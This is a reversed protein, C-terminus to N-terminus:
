FKKLKVVKRRIQGILFPTLIVLYLLFVLPQREPIQIFFYEQRSLFDIVIIHFSLIMDALWGSLVGLIPVSALVGTFFTLGMAFPLSPLIILNALISILSFSGFYYFSIPLTMLSAAITTFITSAIWNIKREGYFYSILMPSLLMIGTFSAFSLLWGLDSVLLPNIMLTITATLLIIRWADYKRGRYWALLKLIAMIGARLISATWGVLAMFLVIFIISFLLCAFRSIKFFLRRVCDVLISLHTGSAVVIHSLGVLKLEEKFSNSLRDKTGLLYSIGLNASEEPLISEIRNIFGDRIDTLWSFYNISKGPENQIYHACRAFGIIMGAVLVVGLFLKTPHFFAGIFLVFALVIWWISLLFNWRFIM